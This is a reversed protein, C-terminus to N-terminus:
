SCGLTNSSDRVPQFAVTGLLKLGFFEDETVQNSRLDCVRHCIGGKMDVSIMLVEKDSEQDSQRDTLSHKM